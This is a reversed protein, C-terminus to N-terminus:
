IIRSHFIVAGEGENEQAIGASLAVILPTPRCRSRLLPQSKTTSPTFPLPSSKSRVGLQATAVHLAAAHPHGALVQPRYRHRSLPYLRGCSLPPRSDPSKLFPGTYSFFIEM